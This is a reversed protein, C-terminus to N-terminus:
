WGGQWAGEKKPKQGAYDLRIPRGELNEGGLTVAKDVSESSDFTVFGIGKFEGSEKDNLWRTGTVTAGAGGFFASIKDEDISWPLNGEALSAAARTPPARPGRPAPRVPAAHPAARPPTNCLDSRRDCISATYSAASRIPSMMQPFLHHMMEHRLPLPDSLHPAAPPPERRPAPLGM